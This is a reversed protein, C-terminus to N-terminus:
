CEFGDYILLSCEGINVDDDHVGARQLTLYESM